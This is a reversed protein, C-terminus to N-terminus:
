IATKRLYEATLLNHRSSSLEAVKILRYRRISKRRSKSTTKLHKLCGSKRGKDMPSVPKSVDDTSKEHTSFWLAVLSNSTWDLFRTGIGHHQALAVIDWDSFSSAGLRRKILALREREFAIPRKINHDKVIGSIKAVLSKDSKKGRFLLAPREFGFRHIQAFAKQQYPLIAM